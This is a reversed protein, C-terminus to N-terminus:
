LLDEYIEQELLLARREMVQILLSFQAMRFLFKDEETIKELSKYYDADLYPSLLNELTKVSTQFARRIDKLNTSRGNESQPITASLQMIRNTHFLLLGKYDISGRARVKNEIEGEVEVENM